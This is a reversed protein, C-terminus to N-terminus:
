VLSCRLFGLLLKSHVGFSALLVMLMIRLKGQGLSGAERISIIGERNRRIMRVRASVVLIVM